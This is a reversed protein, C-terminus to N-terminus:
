DIYGFQRCSDVLDEIKSKFLSVSEADLNNTQFSELVDEYNDGGEIAEKVKAADESKRILISYMIIANDFFYKCYKKLDKNLEDIPYIDNVKMKFNSLSNNLESHYYDIWQNYYKRRSEHDTCAFIMYLIDGVPSSVKSLQYDIMVCEVPVNDQLRFMINNTWSDGQIVVSHKMKQIDKSMKSLEEPMKSVTGRIAAKYHEDALIELADKEVNALYHQFGPAKCFADFFDILNKSYKSFSEPNEEKFVISLSHLIAFKKLILKICENSLPKFRDLTIFESLKLDELLILEHPAETLVGYCEAYRFLSDKPIDNVRQIEVLKPLIEKYMVSENMFMVDIGSRARAIQNTPAIKAIMKFHERDDNVTIRKVNAIYNDGAKGVAEIVINNNQYGRKELVECIFEQQRSSLSEVEGEFTFGAM